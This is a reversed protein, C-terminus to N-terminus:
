DLQRVREILEIEEESYRCLSKLGNANILIDRTPLMDGNCLGDNRSIFMMRPDFISEAMQIFQKNTLFMINM